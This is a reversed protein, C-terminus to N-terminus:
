FLVPINQRCAPCKGKRIRNERVGLGERSILLEGCRPCYTNEYKHDPVNGIYVYHLGREKGIECAKELREIPAPPADFNYASFYRSVHWPIEPGAERVIRDAIEGICDEDDNVEPIILTTLEVHARKSIEDVNRWVKEVDANCFKRYTEEDGKIDINFADAGSELLLEAAEPTFYGNTVVTNYLGEGKALRFVDIAYELFTTPESFSMSTGKCKYEKAMKVFREPAIIRSQNLKGKPAAKSIEYNQCWPCTFTCSWSGVTLFNSGPFFHFFPKKEIPNISLSSILGYELSFLRGSRNERTKCFGLEGPPIVCERNCTKCKVKCKELQEYLYSEKETAPNMNPRGSARERM